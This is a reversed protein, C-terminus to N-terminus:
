FIRKRYHEAEEYIINYMHKHMKSGSFRLFVSLHLTKENRKTDGNLISQMCKQKKKIRLIFFFEFHVNRTINNQKEM